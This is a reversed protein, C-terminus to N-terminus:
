RTVGGNAGMAPTNVLREARAALDSEPVFALGQDDIVAVAPFIRRILDPGGTAADEDAAQFLSTISLDIATDRDLEPRWFAKIWNRAHVGGSGTTAYDTDEYRGGTVDYRFVRGRRRREDWGCYLPVVVLGQFAAPLNAKIMQGLKNSKGELSLPEGSVKEYHELETQFLRVMEMAPGAAGAIGVASWTDAAYVKDMNRNAIAHGETARRDGAMVVGDAFRMSLITTGHPFELSGAGGGAAGLAVGSRGVPLVGGPLLHPAHDRLLDTFSAGPMPGASTPLLPLDTM